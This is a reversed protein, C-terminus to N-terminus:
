YPRALFSQAESLNRLNWEIKNKEGGIVPSGSDCPSSIWGASRNEKLL